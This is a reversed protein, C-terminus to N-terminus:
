RRRQYQGIVLAIVLVAVGYLVQVLYGTSITSYVKPSFECIANEVNMYWYAPLFRGINAVSDSLLERPVFIGCLFSSSLGLINTFINLMAAKRTFLSFLFTFALCVFAQVIVNLLRLLATDAAVETPNLLISVVFYLLAIALTYISSASFLALNQTLVSVKSCSIRDKMQVRHFAILMPGISLIIVCILIYPLYVYFFHIGTAQSAVEQNYFGVESQSDITQLTKEYAEAGTFGGALYARYTSLFTDISMDVFRATVSGPIKYVELSNDQSGALVSKEFGQPITIVYESKRVYLADRIADLNNEISVLEHQMELYSTLGKSLESNDEDFVSVRVTTNSYSEISTQQNLNGIIISIILFIITYMILNATYKKGIKFFTKFVTM